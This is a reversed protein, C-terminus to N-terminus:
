ATAPTGEVSYTDIGAVKEHIKTLRIPHHFSM